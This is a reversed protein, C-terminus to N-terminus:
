RQVPYAIMDATEATPGRPKFTAVSPASPQSPPAGPKSPAGELPAALCCCDGGSRRAQDRALGIANMITEARMNPATATMAGISVTIQLTVGGSFVPTRLVAALQEARAELVARSSLGILVVSFEDPGTRAILDHQRVSRRLREATTRLVRDGVSTGYHDNLAKFADIDILMVGFPVPPENRSLIDLAERFRGWNALRTIQDFNAIEHMRREARRVETVDAATRIVGGGPLVRTAMEIVTGDPLSLQRRDDGENSHSAPAAPRPQPPKGGELEAMRSNHAVICGKPDFVAIGHPLADIARTLLLGRQQRRRALERLRRHRRRLWTQHQLGIAALGIVLATMAFGGAWLIAVRLSIDTGGPYAGLRTLQGGIAVWIVATFLTGFLFHPKLAYGISRRFVILAM